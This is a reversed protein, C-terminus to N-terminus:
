DEQPAAWAGTVDQTVVAPGTPCDGGDCWWTTVLVGDFTREDAWTGELVLDGHVGDDAVTYPECLFSMGELTCDTADFFQVGEGTGRVRWIDTADVAVSLNWGEPADVAIVQLDVDYYGSEAQFGCALLGFLALM